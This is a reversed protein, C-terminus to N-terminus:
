GQGGSWRTWGRDDGTNTVKPLTLEPDRFYQASDDCADHMCCIRLFFFLAWLQIICRSLRHMRKLKKSRQQEHMSRIRSGHFFASSSIYEGQFLSSVRDVSLQSRGITRAILESFPPASNYSSNENRESINNCNFLTTVKSVCSKNCRQVRLDRCFGCRLYTKASKGRYVNIECVLYWLMYKWYKMYKIAFKLLKLNLTDNISRLLRFTQFTSLVLSTSNTAGFFSRVRHQNCKCALLAYRLRTIM